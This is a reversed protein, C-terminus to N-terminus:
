NKFHSDANKGGGRVLDLRTKFELSLEDEKHPYIENLAILTNLDNADLSEAKQFYPLAQEFLGM